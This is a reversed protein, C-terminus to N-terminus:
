ILVMALTESLKPTRKGVFAQLSWKQHLWGRIKVLSDLKEDHPLLSSPPVIVVVVDVRLKFAVSLEIEAVIPRPWKPVYSALDFRDQTNVATRTRPRVEVTKIVIPFWWRTGNQVRHGREVKKESLLNLGEARFHTKEVGVAFVVVSKLRQIWAELKRIHLAQRAAM